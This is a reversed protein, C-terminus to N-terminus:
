EQIKIPRRVRKEENFPTSKVEPFTNNIMKFIKCIRPKLSIHLHQTPTEKFM